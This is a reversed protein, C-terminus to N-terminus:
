CKLRGFTANSQEAYVLLPKDYVFHRSNFVCQKAKEKESKRKREKEKARKKIWKIRKVAEFVTKVTYFNPSITKHTCFESWSTIYKHTLYIRFAVIKSKLMRTPAGHANRERRWRRNLSKFVAFSVSDHLHVPKWKPCCVQKRHFGYNILELKLSEWFNSVKSKNSWCWLLLVNFLWRKKIESKYVEQFKEGFKWKLHHLDTHWRTSHWRM